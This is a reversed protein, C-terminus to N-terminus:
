LNLNHLQMTQFHLHHVLIAIAEQDLALLREVM